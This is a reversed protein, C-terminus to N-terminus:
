SNMVRDHLKPVQLWASQFAGEMWANVYSLHEGVLYVNGEPEQLIPMYKQRTEETYSPWAGLSYPELHWAVSFASHYHERAQPHIKELHRLSVEAREEYPLSSIHAANTGFNYMSLLAGKEHLYDNNPYGIIGLEGINSYSQGGYIWDDTEWFRSNFQMGMRLAMAYPVGQMAATFERSFNTNIKILTSLPMNCVCYDAEVAKKEEGTARDTYEVRVGSDTNEIKTVEANLTLRDGFFGRFGEDTDFLQGVGEEPSVLTSQWDFVPTAALYGANYQLVANAFPLLDSLPFPDDVKGASQTDPLVSYGRHDSAVYSLDNRSLLGWTVLYDILQEVDDKSIQDDLTGSDAAKALLESTYGAMDARLAHLRMRTGSLSGDISEAYAWANLNINNYDILPIGLEKAYHFFARHYFPIRSPGADYWVGEDWTCEQAGKGYEETKSGGRVTFAHGGVRDRAELVTVDYGLKILEYAAASGGPGTGVVIVKTGEAKGELKPPETQALAAAPLMGWASMANMVAAGGSTAGLMKLFRRRTWVGPQNATM